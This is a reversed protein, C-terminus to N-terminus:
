GGQSIAPWGPDTMVEPAVYLTFSARAPEKAALLDALSVDNWDLERAEARSVLLQTVPPPEKRDDVGPLPEQCVDFTDLEDWREFVLPLFVQASPVIGEAYDALTYDGTPEVYVALHRGTDSPRYRGNSTDVLAGRTLKLGLPKLQPDFIDALKQFDNPPLSREEGADSACAAGATVALLLLLALARAPV